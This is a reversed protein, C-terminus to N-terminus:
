QLHAALVHTRAYETGAAKIYDILSLNDLTWKGRCQALGKAVEDDSYTHNYRAYRFRRDTVQGEPVVLDGLERDIRGGHLCRGAVRCLVDQQENSSDMLARIMARAHGVVHMNQVAGEGYQMKLSGTGVSVVLLKDEGTEYGLKYEPLTATLFALFSPNNYPSVGGDIFQFKKKGETSGVMIDQPPFYTPAASSARVLKWLPTELNTKGPPRDNYHSHPNNTVPWPSGTTANRLVLLLLTRLRKTGLTAPQGDEESFFNALFSSLHDSSFKSTLRRYWTSPYFIEKAQSCYFSEVEDVSCGWSLMSAIIAGTSTGAILDFHDALVRPGPGPAGACTCREIERLVQLTFVGHIGGGDLSLIRKM